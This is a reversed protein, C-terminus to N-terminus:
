QTKCCRWIVSKQIEGFISAWFHSITDSKEIAKTGHRSRNESLNEFIKLKESNEVSQPKDSGCKEGNANCKVSRAWMFANSLLQFFLSM